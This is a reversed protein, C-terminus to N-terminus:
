IHGYLQANVNILGSPTEGQAWAAGSKLQPAHLMRVQIPERLFVRRALEQGIPGVGQWAAFGLRQQAFRGAIQVLATGAFHQPLAQPLCQWPM